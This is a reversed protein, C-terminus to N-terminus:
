RETQWLQPFSLVKSCLNINKMEFSLFEKLLNVDISSATFLSQESKLLYTISRIMKYIYM